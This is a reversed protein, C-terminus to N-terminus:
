PEGGVIELGALIPKVCGVMGGREERASEGVGDPAEEQSQAVVEERNPWVQGM